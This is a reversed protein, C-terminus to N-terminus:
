TAPLLEVRRSRPERRRPAVEVWVLAETEPGRRPLAPGRCAPRPRAADALRRASRRAAARAPAGGARRAAARLLRPAHSRRRGPARGEGRDRAVQRRGEREDPRLRRRLVVAPRGRRARARTAPREDRGRSLRGHERRPRRPRGPSQPPARRGRNGLRVRERVLRGDAGGDITTAGAVPAPQQEVFAASRALDLAQRTEESPGRVRLGRADFAYVSVNARNAASITSRFMEEVAPPVALGESFYLLSKRGQVLSLGHAIALLPQLSAQGETERTVRDTFRLMRAEMALYRADIGTAESAKKAIAFAEETANDYQPNAAAPGPGSRRGDDGARHRRAARRPGRHLVPPGRARPRDQLRRLRVGEPVLPARVGARGRSREEGGGPRAPRLRPRRRQDLAEAAAGAASAATAAAPTPAGAAPRVTGEAQVLRFSEIACLKGDELVQIEDARLDEVLRGSKDRVILDLRVLDSRAPFVPTPAPDQSSGLSAVSSLLIVAVCAPHLRM